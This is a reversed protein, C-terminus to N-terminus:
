WVLGKDRFHSSLFVKMSYVPEELFSIMRDAISDEEDEVQQDYKKQDEPDIDESYPAPSQAHSQSGGVIVEPSPPPPSAVEGKNDVKPEEEVTAHKPESNVKEDTRPKRTM